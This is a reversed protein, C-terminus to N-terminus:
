LEVYNNWNMTWFIQLKHIIIPNLSSPEGSRQHYVDLLLLLLVAVKSAGYYMSYCDVFGM